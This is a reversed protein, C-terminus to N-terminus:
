QRIVVGNWCGRAVPFMVSTRVAGSDLPQTPCQDCFNDAGTDPLSTNSKRNNPFVIHTATGLTLTTPTAPDAYCSCDPPAANPLNSNM